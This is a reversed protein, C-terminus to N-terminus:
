LARREPTGTPLREGLQVRVRELAYFMRSKATGVPCAMVGAIEEYSLDQYIRMVLVARQEDPLASVAGRIAEVAENRQAAVAPSPDPAAPEETRQRRWWKTESGRKKAEHRCLNLAIAYLWARFSLSPDFRSAHRFVRFFAEQTLEEARARNGLYRFAFGLLPTQYRRVLAEFQSLDGHVFAALVEEDRLPM